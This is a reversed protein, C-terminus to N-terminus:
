HCRIRAVIEDVLGYNAIDVFTQIVYIKNEEPCHWFCAILRDAYLKGRLHRLLRQIAEHFMIRDGIVRLGEHGHFQEPEARPGYKRFKKWYEKRAWDNLTKGKLAVNALGWRAATITETDHKFELEVEGAVLRQKTPRFVSPLELEFDYVAWLTWDGEPHDRISRIIQEALPVLDKEEPAGLVQAFVTRGCKKCSWAAGVAKQSGEWAFTKLGSKGLKSRSLARDGRQIKIEEKMKKKRLKKTEALYRDVVADLDVFGGPDTWNIEVRPM